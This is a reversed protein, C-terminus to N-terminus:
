VGMDLVEEEELGAAGKEAKRQNKERIAKREERKAELIICKTIYLLIM